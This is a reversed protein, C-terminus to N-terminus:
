SLHYEYRTSSDFVCYVHRSGEAKHLVPKLLGEATRILDDLSRLLIVTEGPKVEPLQRIEVIIGKYKKHAQRAEKEAANLAGRDERLYWVITAILLALFIGAIAPLFIRAQSVSLWLYKEPQAVVRTITIAGPESKTLNDSWTLTDAALDMGISHVFDSDITGADTGALTHVRARIALTRIQAAAGTERQIVDFLGSFQELDLPFSLTFDGTKTTLPILEITKTWQGPSELVAEVVVSEERTKLPQGSELHYTFTVNMGDILNLLIVDEPGATPTPTATSGAAAPSKLIIAGFPSDARLYVEYDFGGQQEYDLGGGSGAIARTLDGDVEILPGNARLPLSQTFSEFVPGTGTEIVAYVYATIIIESGSVNDGITIINDTVSDSIDLTFPVAFDGTEPTEPVLIIEESGAAGPSRVTAKVEIQATVAAAMEEPVFRYNFNFSFRDVMGSPYKLVDLAAPTEQPEPGYLHSPKLSVLYDFEGRHEYDVLIVEETVSTEVPLRYVQFVGFLSAALLVFTIVLLTIKM